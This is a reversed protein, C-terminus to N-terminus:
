ANVLPGNPAGLPEVQFGLDEIMQWDLQVPQGPETLYDAAFIANAPYLAMPQLSRLHVERGASVRIERDPNVFRHMCLLKLCYRPTLKKTTGLGSLPTGDIAILFNVPISDAHINRLALAVEVIDQDREGMGAIMGCCPSMGADRATNVTEVRQDYTHTTCIDDYHRQSTNLNHNYRDVGAAALARAQEPKLLGMCACIKLGPQQQKIQKVAETVYGVENDTPGRGSLVICCTSAKLQVARAAGDLLEQTTQLGYVRIPADSLRSQSCYHCDEACAGSKANILFNLKVTDGFYHRRLRYAAALIDLIQGDPAQLVALAQEPSCAHERSLIRDALDAWAHTTNSRAMDPLAPTM